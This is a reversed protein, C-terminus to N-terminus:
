NTHNKNNRQKTLGARLEHTAQSIGGTIAALSLITATPDPCYGGKHNASFYRTNMIQAVVVAGGCAAVGFGIAAAKFNESAPAHLETWPTRTTQGEPLPPIQALSALREAATDIFNKM